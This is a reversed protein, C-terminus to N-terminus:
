KETSSVEEVGQGTQEAAAVGEGAEERTESPAPSPEKTTSGPNAIRVRLQRAKELIVLRKKEGLQHALRVIHREPDIGKLDREQRVLREQLGSPHLGRISNSKRFGINPKRPWGSAELRIRSTGGRPRRWSEKVRKLRWSEQRKFRRAM